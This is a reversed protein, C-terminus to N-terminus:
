GQPRPLTPFNILTPNRTNEQKNAGSLRHVIIEQAKCRSIHLPCQPAARTRAHYPRKAPARMRSSSMFFHDRLGFWRSEQFYVNVDVVSNTQKTRASRLAARCM